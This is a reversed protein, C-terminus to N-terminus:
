LLTVLRGFWWGCFLYLELRLRGFLGVNSLSAVPALEDGSVRCFM